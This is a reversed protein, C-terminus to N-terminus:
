QRFVKEVFLNGGSKVQVLYMGRSLPSLDVQTQKSTRVMLQGASNFICVEDIRQAGNDITIPGETYTPFITIKGAKKYTVSVTKSFTANGETDFYRLRYYGIGRAPLPDIFNYSLSQRSNDAGKIRGIEQFAKDMEGKREIAFAANNQESATSWNVAVQAKEKDLQATLATLDLPLAVEGTPSYKYFDKAYPSGINGTGVYFNEGVVFGVAQARATSPFDVPLQTWTGGAGVTPDYEWFQVAGAGADSGLGIYGKTSTALSVTNFRATGGYDTKQTWANGVPDYEYFDKFPLNAPGPGLGTGLYGKSGIAFGGASRRVLGGGIDVKQAWVDNVQDYEWFATNNEMATINGSRFYGKTGISFAVGLFESLGSISAKSAWTNTGPTYEYVNQTNVGMGVYGKGGIVFAVNNELGSGTFNAKQSWGGGETNYSWFDNKYGNVDRGTGVYGITGISFAFAAYRATGPFSNMMSWSPPGAQITPLLFGLFLMVNILKM